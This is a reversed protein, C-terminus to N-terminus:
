RCTPPTQLSYTRGIKLNEIVVEGGLVATRGRPRVASELRAGADRRSARRHPVADEPAHIM